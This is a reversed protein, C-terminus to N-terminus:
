ADALTKRLDLLRGCRHASVVFLVVGGLEPLLIVQMCRLGFKETVNSRGQLALLGNGSAALNNLLEILLDNLPVWFALLLWLLHHSACAHRFDQV